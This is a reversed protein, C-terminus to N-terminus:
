DHWSTSMGHRPTSRRQPLPDRHWPTPGGVNGMNKIIKDMKRFVWCFAEFVRFADGFVVGLHIRVWGFGFM